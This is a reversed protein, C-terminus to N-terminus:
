TRRPRGRLMEATRVLHEIQEADLDDLMVALDSIPGAEAQRQPPLLLEQPQVTLVRAIAALQALTMSQHGNLWKSVTPESVNLAEALRAQNVNRYDLWERIHRAISRNEARQEPTLAKDPM